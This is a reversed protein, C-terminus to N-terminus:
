SVKQRAYASTVESVIVLAIIIILTMGTKAYALTDITERLYMGIGGAGVYGLITAMRFTSDWGYISIGTWSTQVQPLVGWVFVKIEGAGTARIAEVPGPHIDEIEEAMLKGCFGITALLCTVAGALPGFGLIMTFLMAWIMEYIARTGIIIGRGLPYLILKNPTMNLAAFWALPVSLALGAVTGLFGMQFTEIISKLMGMNQIYKLDPPNFLQSFKHALPGFMWIFRSLPIRLYHFSWLFFACLFLVVFYLILSRRSRTEKDIELEKSIAQDSQAM